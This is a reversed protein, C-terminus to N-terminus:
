LPRADRVTALPWIVADQRASFHLLPLEDPLRLGDPAMTNEDLEAEATQLPWPPHHIEARCVEGGRGLTYLCYRETLFHELSGPSAEFVDGAPGPRYRARFRRAREGTLRESSYEIWGEREEASMRAHHYPLRYLQRAAAVALPSQADLSFFYIGPKDGVTTYTRVNLELFSSVGPLPPLGRLRLGTLRFPTMGLWASGDHTDLPLQAPVLPRLEAADVRWHAFLLREWTQGQIWPREPLPWARHETEALTAAQRAATAVLDAIM